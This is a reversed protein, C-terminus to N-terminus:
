NYPNFDDSNPLSLKTEVIPISATGPSNNNEDSVEEKDPSFVYDLTVATTTTSTTSSSSTSLSLHKSLSERLEPFPKRNVPTKEFCGMAIKWIHEPCRDPKSLREGKQLYPLLEENSLKSYPCDTLCLDFIEWVTVGFSWVDSHKSFQRKELVEPAVWRCGDAGSTIDNGLKSRLLIM